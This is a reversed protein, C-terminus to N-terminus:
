GRNRYSWSICRRHFCNKGIVKADQKNYVIIGIDIM